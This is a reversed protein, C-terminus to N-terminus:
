SPAIAIRRYDFLRLLAGPAKLSRRALDDNFNQSFFTEGSYVALGTGSFRNGGEKPIM